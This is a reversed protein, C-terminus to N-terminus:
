PLPDFTGGVIVAHLDMPSPIPAALAVASEFIAATM